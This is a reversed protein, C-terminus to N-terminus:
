PRSKNETPLIKGRPSIRVFHDQFFDRTSLDDLGRALYEPGVCISDLQQGLYCAWWSFTSNAVIFHKCRSMLAMDKWSDMGRNEDVIIFSKDCFTQRCWNPDDSFVFFVANPLHKRLYKIATEYYSMSCINQLYDIELYDGRRIHLAVSHGNALSRAYSSNFDDFSYVDKVLNQSDDFYKYSLFQNTFCGPKASCFLEKRYYHFEAYHGEVCDLNDLIKGARKAIFFLLRSTFGPLIKVSSPLSFLRSLEFGNHDQMCSLQVAVSVSHKESYALAAAYQFMQNGLGGNIKFINGVKLIRLAVIWLFGFLLKSGPIQKKLSNNPSGKM